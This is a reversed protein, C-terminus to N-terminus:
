VKQLYKRELEFIDECYVRVCKSSFVNLGEEHFSELRELFGEEHLDNAVHDFSNPEGDGKAKSTAMTIAAVWKKFKSM